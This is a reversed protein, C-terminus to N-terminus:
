FIKTRAIRSLRERMSLPKSETPPKGKKSKSRSAKANATAKTGSRKARTSAKPKSTAPRPAAQKEQDKKPQAQRKESSPAHREAAMGDSSVVEADVVTGKRQEPSSGKAAPEQDPTSEAGLQLTLNGVGSPQLKDTLSRLLKTIEQQQERDKQRDEKLYQNEEELKALREVKEVVVAELVALRTDRDNPLDELLKNLTARETEAQSTNSEQDPAQGAMSAAGSEKKADPHPEGKRGYKQRLWDQRILWAPNLGDKVARPATEPTCERGPTESGDVLMRLFIHDLIDGEQLRLAKNIDRKLSKKSRNFMDDADDITVFEPISSSPM